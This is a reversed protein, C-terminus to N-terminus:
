SEATGAKYCGTLLMHCSPSKVELSCETLYEDMVGDYDRDHINTYLKTDSGELHAYRIYEMDLLFGYGAYIASQGLLPDYIVMIDGYSTKLNKIRMGYTEGQVDTVLDKRAWSNIQSALNPGAILLKEGSGYSFAKQAVLSDFNDYSLHTAAAGFAQTSSGAVLFEEVGGMTRRVTNTNDTSLKKQGFYLANAIDRAHEIGAKKRQYNLDKGGYLTSNLETRSLQVPTRFIQTYNFKGAEQTSKVTRGDSGEEQANGIILVEADNAIAAAATSGYGRVVTLANNTVITVLMCEGTSPVKIIDYARFISGDDVDITTDDVDNHAGNVLTRIALLDDELWEIKPGIAVRTDKKALKLFTLFPAKDPQLLAIDKAMDVVVRSASINGMTRQGSVNAM